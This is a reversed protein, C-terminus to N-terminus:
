CLPPPLAVQRNANEAQRNRPRSRRPSSFRPPIGGGANLSRPSGSVDAQIAGARPLARSHQRSLFVCSRSTDPFFRHDVHPQRGTPRRGLLEVRSIERALLMKLLGVPVDAGRCEGRKRSMPNGPLEPHRIKSASGTSGARWVFPRQLPGSCGVRPVCTSGPFPPEGAPDGGYGVESNEVRGARAHSAPRAQGNRAM